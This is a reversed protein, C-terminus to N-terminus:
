GINPPRGPTVPESTPILDCGCHGGFCKLRSSRPLIGYKQWISNRYVRGNLKRCDDCHEKEPSWVWKMKQDACAMQSASARVEVYRAIWMEARTLLPNLKGGSEQNNEEIAEGFGFIYQRNNVIFQQLEQEEEITRENPAIGCQAAGENWAQTFGQIIAANMGEFFDFLDGNGTWLRRVQARIENRYTSQSKDFTDIKM